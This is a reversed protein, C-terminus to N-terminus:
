MTSRASFSPTGTISLLCRSPAVESTISSTSVAASLKCFTPHGLQGSRLDRHLGPGRGRTGAEALAIGAHGLAGSERTGTPKPAGVLFTCLLGCAGAHLLRELLQGDVPVDDDAGRGLLLLKRGARSDSGAAVSGIEGEVREFADPM